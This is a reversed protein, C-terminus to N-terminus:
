KLFIDKIFNKLLLLCDRDVFCFNKLWFFIFLIYFIINFSGLFCWLIIINFVFYLNDYLFIVLVNFIDM